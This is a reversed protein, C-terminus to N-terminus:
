KIVEHVLHPLQPIILREMGLSVAGVSGPLAFVLTDEVVGAVARSAMARPGIDDVYSIYRFLEGFGPLTKDLMSEIAEITVDRKAIGTGGTTIVADISADECWLGVQRRIAFADDKVITRAAVIHKAEGLLAAVCNGGKDTAPTRTDSVTLVAIRLVRDGITELSM